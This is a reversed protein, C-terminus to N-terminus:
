KSLLEFAVAVAGAAIAVGYPMSARQEAATGPWGRRLPSIVGAISPSGLALAVVGGALGTVALFECAYPVGAWAMCVALLKADGGGLWGRTFAAFGIVLTLSALGLAAATQAPTLSILAYVAFLGFISGSMSNTIRLTRADGVAAALSCGVFGSIPLATLFTVIAAGPSLQDLTRAAM